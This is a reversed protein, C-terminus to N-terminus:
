FWNWISEFIDKLIDLFSNGQNPTEQGQDPNEIDVNGSNESDDPTEEVPADVYPVEPLTDMISMYSMLSALSTEGVAAEGTVRLKTISLLNEGTNSIVVLGDENPTIQYYLDTSHSIECSSIGTGNTVTASTVGNPAKLGIYAYEAGDLTFAISQNKALYVENKPGYDEYTGIVNTTTGTQSEDKDIFVVGNAKDVDATLKGSDLLINRVSQFVAGVENGYAADVDPDGQIPNYVRIGDLYFTSRNDSTSGVTLVVKYTGYEVSFFLTPIQYYGNSESQTDVILVKSLVENGDEGVRYLQARVTGTTMDTYGYIDVGTGTFTFTAKANKTRSVHAFGDSYGTDDSLGADGEVWGGHVGNNPTETNDSPTGDVTWAGGYEIGVKGGNEETTIFDDEYYVNNAPMVSIKSWINQNSADKGFSYFTDYGDWNMTTPTYTLGGDTIEVKGYKEPIQTIPTSFKHMGDADLTTRTTQGENILTATKAYDLVYLEKNVVTTPRNFIAVPRESDASAYIGSEAANTYVPKGTAAADLAEVGKITVVLKSGTCEYQNTDENFEGTVVCNDKYNFGSVSVARKGQVDIKAGALSQPTGWLYIGNQDRGTCPVVQATVQAPEPVEFGEAMIDKLVANADLTVDTTTIDEKIEEFINNLQDADSASKYYGNNGGTGLDSM